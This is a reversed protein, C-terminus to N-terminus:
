AIPATFTSSFVLGTDSTVTVTYKQGPQWTFAEPTLGRQGGIVWQNFTNPAASTSTYVGIGNPGSIYLAVLHLSSQSPNAFAVVVHNLDSTQVIAEVTVNINFAASSSANVRVNLYNCKLAPAASCGLFQNQTGNVYDAANPLPFVAHVSGTNEFSLSGVEVWLTPNYSFRSDDALYVTANAPGRTMNVTLEMGEVQSSNIGLPFPTTVTSMQFTTSGYFNANANPPAVPRLALGVDDFHLSLETPYGANGQSAGPLITEMSVILKYTGAVWFGAPPNFPTHRYIWGSPGFGNANTPQPYLASGYNVTPNLEDVTQYVGSPNVLFVQYFILSNRVASLGDLSTAWSVTCCSATALEAITGPNLSFPATFETTSALQQGTQIPNGNFTPQYDVYLSGPGSESSTTTADGDYGATLGGPLNGAPVAVINGSSTGGMASTSVTSNVTTIATDTYPLSVMKNAVWSIIATTYYTGITAPVTATWSFDVPPTSPGIANPFISVWTINNGVTPLLNWGAPPGPQIAVLPLSPDVLLTVKAIDYLGGIPDNNSVTLTSTEPQPLAPVGPFQFNQPSNTVSASDTVVQYGKSVYWGAIGSTFNMNSIPLFPNQASNLAGNVVGSQNFEIGGFTANQVDIRNDESRIQDANGQHISNVAANFSDFVATLAGVVLVVIIIFFVAGIITSIGSRRKM